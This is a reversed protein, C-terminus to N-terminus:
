LTPRTPWASRDAQARPRPVWAAISAWRDGLDREVVFDGRRGSLDPAWPGYNAALERACLRAVVDDDAEFSQLPIGQGTILRYTPM